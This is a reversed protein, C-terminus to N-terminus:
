DVGDVYGKFNVSKVMEVLSREGGLAQANECGLNVATQDNWRVDKGKMAFAVLACQRVMAGMLNQADFNLEVVYVPIADRTKGEWMVKGNVLNFSSPTQMEGQMVTIAGDVPDSGKVKDWIKYGLIAAGIAVALLVGQVTPQNKKATAGLEQQEEM